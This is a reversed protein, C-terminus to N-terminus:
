SQRKDSGLTEGLIFAIGSWALAQFVSTWESGIGGYPDAFARPIHLILVWIFLMVGLLTAALRAKVRFIMGLGSAVLAVGAFCTCFVHGPIWKPVLSAVSRLYLFHDVGFVVVMIALPYVGLPILKELLRILSASSRRASTEPLTGAVVLACGAFAFSEFAASWGILSATRALINAPIHLLVVSALFLGALLTSADRVKVGFLIAAGAAVFIAGVLYVYFPSGHIWAPWSPVFDPIFQRFFFHQCGIGILGIAFFARGTAIVRPKAVIPLSM